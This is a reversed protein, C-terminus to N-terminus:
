FPLDDGMAVAAAEGPKGDCNQTGCVYFANFRKPSGDANTKTKSFGAKILRWEPNGCVACGYEPFPPEPREVFERDSQRIPSTQGGGNVQVAVGDPVQIQIIITKV